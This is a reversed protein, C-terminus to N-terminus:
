PALDKEVRDLSIHRIDKGKVQYIVYECINRCRDGIRELARAAWIVDLSVPVMRPSEMAYTMQQRLISEYERDVKKDEQAVALSLKVDLRAFADLAERLMELVHQGLHEFETFQKQKVSQGDMDIRQRAIRKAEDGIRELDTITKIVAIVLRLDTAAPQRRALIHTCEEDISVELTNVKVDNEVVAEAAELDFEIISRIAESVQREVLGGMTLVKNRIDELEQDFRKSIHQRMTEPEKM